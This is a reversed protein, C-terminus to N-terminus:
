DLRSFIKYVKEATKIWTYSRGHYIIKKEDWENVLSLKIAEALKEVDGAPVLLGFDSGPMLDPIGGVRTAIVPRGCAMAEIVSVPCGERDSSLCFIDAASLWTPVLEHPVNGVFEIYDVLSKEKVLRELKKGEPGDGLIYLKIDEHLVKKSFSFAKILNDLRKEFSLRAISLLIKGEQPIRLKARANERTEPVFLRPNIGNPVVSIKEESVSYFRVMKNKLDTSVSIIHDIKNLYSKVLLKRLSSEFFCLSENGHVLLVVKKRLLKGIIYAVLGDPYGWHVFIVDFTKKLKRFFPYICILYFFWDTFKFFRPIFVFRPYYIHLGRKKLKYPIKNYNKYKWTLSLFPFIPIPSVVKISCSSSLAKALEDVFIGDTPRAPNPYMHSLLLVKM